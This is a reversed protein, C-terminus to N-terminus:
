SDEGGLISVKAKRRAKRILHEFKPAAGKNKLPAPKSKRNDGSVGPARGLRFVNGISEKQARSLEISLKNPLIMSLEGTM